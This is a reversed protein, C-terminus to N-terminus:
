SDAVPQGECLEAPAERALVRSGARNRKQVGIARLSTLQQIM